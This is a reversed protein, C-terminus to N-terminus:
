RDAAGGRPSRVDLAAALRELAPVAVMLNRREEESLAAMGKSLLAVRSARAREYAARGTPTIVVHVARPERPDPVRAVWGHREMRSILATMSPQAIQELEALETVRHPGAKALLSLVTTQTRSLGDGTVERRMVRVLSSVPTLLAGALAEFRSTGGEVPASPPAAEARQDVRDTRM